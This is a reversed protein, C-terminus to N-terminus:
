RDKTTDMVNQFRIHFPKRNVVRTKFCHMKDSSGKCDHMYDRVTENAVCVIM